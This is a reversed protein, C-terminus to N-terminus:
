HLRILAVSLRKVLTRMMRSKGTVWDTVMRLQLLLQVVAFTLLLSPQHHGQVVTYWLGLILLLLAVLQPMLWIVPLNKGVTKPTARFRLPIRTLAMLWALTYTPWTSYVLIVARLFSTSR